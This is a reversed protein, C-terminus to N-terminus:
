KRHGIFFGTVGSVLAIFLGPILRILIQDKHEELFSKRDQFREKHLICIYKENKMLGISKDYLLLIPYIFISSFLPLIPNISTHEKIFGLEMLGYYTFIVFFLIILISFFIKTKTNNIINAFRRKRKAFIEVIKTMVGKCLPRNDSITINIWSSYFRIELYSRNCEDDRNEAYINLTSLQENSLSLYEEIEKPSEFEAGEIRTNIKSFHNGLIKLISTLDDIYLEVYSNIEISESITTEKM